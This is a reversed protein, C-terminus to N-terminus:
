WCRVVVLSNVVQRHKPGCDTGMSVNIAYLPVLSDHFRIEASAHVTCISANCSLIDQLNM